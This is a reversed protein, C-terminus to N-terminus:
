GQTRTCFIAGQFHRWLATQNYARVDMGSGGHADIRRGKLVELGSIRTCNAALALSWCETV